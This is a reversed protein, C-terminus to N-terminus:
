PAEAIDGSWGEKNIVCLGLIKSVRSVGNTNPKSIKMAGTYGSSNGDSAAM